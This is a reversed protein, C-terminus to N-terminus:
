LGLEVQVPSGSFAFRYQYHSLLSFNREGAEKKKASNVAEHPHGLTGDSEYIDERFSPSCM